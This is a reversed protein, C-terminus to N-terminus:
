LNLPRLWKGVPAAMKYKLPAWYKGNLLSEGFVMFYLVSNVGIEQFVALVQFIDNASNHGNEITKSEYVALTPNCYEKVNYWIKHDYM